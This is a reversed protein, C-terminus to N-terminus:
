KLFLIRCTKSLNETRWWSDLVAYVAIPIPIIIYWVLGSKVPTIHLRKCLTVIGSATLICNTRRFISMNISSVHRPYYHLMCITLSYLFEANFNTFSIIRIVERKLRSWGEIETSNIGSYHMTNCNAYTSGDVV